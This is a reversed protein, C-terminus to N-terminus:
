DFPTGPVLSVELRDPEDSCAAETATTCPMRAVSPLVGESALFGLALERDHGPTRLTVAVDHGEVRIQLAREVALADEVRERSRGTVRTVPRRLIADGPSTM